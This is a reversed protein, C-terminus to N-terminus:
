RLVYWCPSPQSAFLPSMLRCSFLLSLASHLVDTVTLLSLSTFAQVSFLFFLYRHFQFKEGVGDPRLSNTVRRTESLSHKIKKKKKESQLLNPSEGPLRDYTPSCVVSCLMHLQQTPGHAEAFLAKTRSSVRIRLGMLYCLTSFLTM